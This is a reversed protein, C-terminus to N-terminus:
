PRTGLEIGLSTALELLARSRQAVPYDIFQGGVDINGIGQRESLDFAAVIEHARKIRQISPTFIEDIIPIQRPHVAHKGFMGLARSQSAEARLGEEDRFMPYVGDHPPLLGALRSAIVLRQKASLLLASVGNEAPWDLGADLSFDGAGFILCDIRPTVAAISEVNNLGAVSEITPMMRISGVPLARSTELASLYWDVVAVDSVTEAKPLVIGQLRPGVVADLDAVTAAANGSNVRVWLPVSTASAALASSIMKRAEIKRSDGVADELDLILGPAKLSDLKALKREDGGPVFLMSTFLNSM